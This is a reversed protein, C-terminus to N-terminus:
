LDDFIFWWILIMLDYWMKSIIISNISIKDIWYPEHQVGQICLPKLFVALDVDMYSCACFSYITWYAHKNTGDENVQMTINRNNAMNAIAHSQKETCVKIHQIYKHQQAKVAHSPGTYAHMCAVIGTLDIHVHM